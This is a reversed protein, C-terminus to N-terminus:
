FIVDEVVLVVVLSAAAAAAAAPPPSVERAVRRWVISGERWGEWKWM